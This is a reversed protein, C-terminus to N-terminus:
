KEAAQAAAELLADLREAAAAQLNPQAHTYVKLTFGADAHGLANSVTAVDAGGAISLSAFTHRLRHFGCRDIKLSDLLVHWRRRLMNSRRFPKVGEESGFVFRDSLDLPVPSFRSRLAQLRAVVAPPVHVTRAQASKTEGVLVGEGKEEYASSDIRATGERLDLARWRLAQAEGIRAGCRGLFWVLVAFEEDVLTDEPLPRTAADLIRALEEATFSRTEPKKAKPRQVDALISARGAEKFAGLM